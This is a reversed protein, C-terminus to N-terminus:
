WNLSSRACKCIQMQQSHLLLLSPLYPTNVLPHHIIHTTADKYMQRNLEFKFKQLRLCQVQASPGLAPQAAPPVLSTHQCSTRPTSHTPTSIRPLHAQAQATPPPTSTGPNKHKHLLLHASSSVRTSTHQSDGAATWIRFVWCYCLLSSKNQLDVYKMIWIHFLWM